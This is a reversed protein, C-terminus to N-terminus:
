HGMGYPTEYVPQKYKYFYGFRTGGDCFPYSGVLELEENCPSKKIKLRFLKGESHPITPRVTENTVREKNMIRCVATKGTPSITVVQIFDINTQDYGWSEYFIDGVKIQEM